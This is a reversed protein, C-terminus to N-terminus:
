PVPEPIPEPVLEPVPKLLQQISDWADDVLGRLRTVQRRSYSLRFSETMESEELIAQMARFQERLSEKALTRISDENDM